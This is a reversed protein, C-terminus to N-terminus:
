NIPYVQGLEVKTLSFSEADDGGKTYGGIVIIANDNVAAITVASRPSSLSAITNRWSKTSEDYIKIDSTTTNVDYPDRGGIVM